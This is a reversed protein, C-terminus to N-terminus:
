LRDTRIRSVHDVRGGRASAADIANHLPGDCLPATIGRSRCHTELQRRTEAQWPSRISDHIISGDNDIIFDWLRADLAAVTAAHAPDDALSHMENPDSRLDYCELHFNQPEPTTGEYSEHLHARDGLRQCWRPPRFNRILKHSSTRISRTNM